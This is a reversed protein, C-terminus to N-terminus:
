VANLLEERLRNTLTATLVIVVCDMKILEKILTKILGSTYISYSHVEDFIVVKRYMGFTRLFFYKAQPLVGLLIQDVTGTGFEDLIARKNGKFWDDEKPNHFIDACGHILHLNDSKLWNELAKQMRVFIRNSTVQTPMAFYIGDAIGKRCLNFAPYLAAETKGIGMPAELIYLGPGQINDIMAKQIPNPNYQEKQGKFFVEKFPMELINSFDTRFFNYKNFAKEIIKPVDNIEYGSPSFFSEDSSVWDCVCLLGGFYKLFTVDQVNILPIPNIKFYSALKSVLDSRLQYWGDTEDIGTCQYTKYEHGNDTHRYKGHHFLLVKSIDTGILSKMHCYSIVEHKLTGYKFIDSYDSFELYGLFHRLMAQFGPSLKGVDHCAILFPIINLPINQSIWNLAQTSLIDKKLLREAVLGSALCHLYVEIGLKKGDTKASLPGKFFEPPPVTLKNINKPIIM